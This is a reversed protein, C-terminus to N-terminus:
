NRQADTAGLLEPLLHFYVWEIERKAADHENSSGPSAGCWFRSLNVCSRNEYYIMLGQCWGVTFVVFFRLLLLLIYNHRPRLM